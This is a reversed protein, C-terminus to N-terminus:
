TVRYVRYPKMTDCACVCVCVCARACCTFGPPIQILDTTLYYYKVPEIDQNQHYAATRYSTM